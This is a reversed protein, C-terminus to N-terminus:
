DLIIPEKLFLWTIQTKNGTQTEIKKRRPSLIIAIFAAMTARLFSDKLGFLYEFVINLIIFLLALILVPYRAIKKM